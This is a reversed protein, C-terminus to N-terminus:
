ETFTINFTYYYMSDEKDIDERDVVLTVTDNKIEDSTYVKIGTYLGVLKLDLYSEPLEIKNCFDSIMRAINESVICVDPRYQSTYQLINASALIRSAIKRKDDECDKKISDLGTNIRQETYIHKCNEVGLNIFHQLENM